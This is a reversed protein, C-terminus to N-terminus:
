GSPNGDFTLNDINGTTLNDKMDPWPSLDTSVDGVVPAFVGENHVPFMGDGNSNAAAATDSLDTTDYKVCQGDSAAPSVTAGHTGLANPSDVFEQSTSEIRPTPTRSRPTCNQMYTSVFCRNRMLGVLVYNKLEFPGDFM